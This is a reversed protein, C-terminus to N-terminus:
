PKEGAGDSAPPVVAHSRHTKIQEVTGNPYTEGFRCYVCDGRNAAALARTRNEAKQRGGRSGLIAAARKASLEAVSALFATFTEVQKSEAEILRARAEALALAEAALASRRRNWLM